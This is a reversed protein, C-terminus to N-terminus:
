LGLGGLLDNTIRKTQKEGDIYYEIIFVSPRLDDGDYVVEVDVEVTKGAQIARYWENELKKYSSVNVLWYQSVLNDLQGSGGFRDGALHGAHDDLQKGPTNRVYPLRRTRETLQLDETYWNAIRGQDDTQYSYGFEGAQYTTNPPLPGQPPVTKEKNETYWNEDLNGANETEEPLKWLEGVDAAEDEPLLADREVPQETDVLILNALCDYQRTQVYRDLVSHEISGPVHCKAEILQGLALIGIESECRHHWLLRPGDAAEKWRDEGQSQATFCLHM